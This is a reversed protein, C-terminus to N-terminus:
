FFFEDSRARFTQRVISEPELFSCELGSRIMRGAKRAVRRFAIDLGCRILAGRTMFERRSCLCLAGIEIGLKCRRHADCVSVDQRFPAPSRRRARVPVFAPYMRVLTTSGTM